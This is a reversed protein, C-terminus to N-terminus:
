VQSQDVARKRLFAAPNGGYIEFPPVSKTAVSGATVISCEALTVGPCVVARAGVWAGDGIMIPQVRLAFFPDSWDHNGTCLYAGQSVCANAGIHVDALNDIWADEGVWAHDAIKLRWPFKIRVGPKIVVGRGISAGFRRLLWRRVASSPLLPCRLLPLGCFFWLACVLRSRGPRYWSNDFRDLRVGMEFAITGGARERGPIGMPFRVKAPPPASLAHVAVYDRISGITERVLLLRASCTHAAALPHERICQARNTLRGEQHRGADSEPAGSQAPDSLRQGAPSAVGRCRRGAPRHAATQGPPLLSQPSRKELFERPAPSHRFFRNESDSRLRSDPNPRANQKWSTPSFTM